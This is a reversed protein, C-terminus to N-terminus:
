MAPVDEHTVPNSFTFQKASWPKALESLAAVTEPGQNPAPASLVEVSAVTPLMASEAPSAAAVKAKSHMVHLAVLIGIAAMAAAVTVIRKLAKLSASGDNVGPIRPMEPKFPNPKTAQDKM